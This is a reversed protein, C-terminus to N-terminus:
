KIIAQKLKPSAWGYWTAKPPPPSPAHEWPDHYYTIYRGHLGNWQYHMHVTLSSKGTSSSIVVYIFLYIQLTFWYAVDDTKNLAHHYFLSVLMEKLLMKVACDATEVQRM